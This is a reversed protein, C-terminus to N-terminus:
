HYEYPPLKFHTVMSDIRIPITWSNNQWKKQAGVVAKVKNAFNQVNCSEPTKKGIKLVRRTFPSGCNEFHNLFLIQIPTHVNFHVSFRKM